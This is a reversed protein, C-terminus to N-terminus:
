SSRERVNLESMTVIDQCRRVSCDPVLAQDIAVLLPVPAGFALWGQGGTGPSALALLAGAVVALGLSGAGVQSM